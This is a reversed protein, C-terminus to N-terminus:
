QLIANIFTTFGLEKMKTILKAKEELVKNTTGLMDAEYKKKATMSTENAGFVSDFSMMDIVKIGPLDTFCYTLAVNTDTLYQLYIQFTLNNTEDQTRMVSVYLPQKSNQEKGQNITNIFEDLEEYRALM